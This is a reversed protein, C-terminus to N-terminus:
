PNSPRRSPRPPEQLPVCRMEERVEGWHRHLALLMEDLDHAPSWHPYDRRFKRTDSIWWRPDAFRARPSHDFPVEAGTLHEYRAILELVSAGRERGGGTM